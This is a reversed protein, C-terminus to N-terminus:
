VHPKPLLEDSNRARLWEILEVLQDSAAEFLQEGKQASADTQDGLVGNDTNDIADYFTRSGNRLYSEEFAESFGEDRAEELHDDHVLESNLYQIM